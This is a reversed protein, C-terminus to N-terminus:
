GQTDSVAAVAADLRLDWLSLDNAASRGSAHGAATAAKHFRHWLTSATDIECLKPNAADVIYWQHDPFNAEAYREAADEGAATITALVHRRDQNYGEYIVIEFERDTTM